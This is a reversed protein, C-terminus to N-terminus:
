VPGPIDSPPSMGCGTLIEPDVLPQAIQGVQSLDAALDVPTQQFDFTDAVVTTQAAVADL